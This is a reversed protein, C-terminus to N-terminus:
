GRTLFIPVRLVRSATPELYRRHLERHGLRQSDEAPLRYLRRTPSPQEPDQALSHHPSHNDHNEMERLQIEIPNLLSDNAKLTSFLDQSILATSLDAM